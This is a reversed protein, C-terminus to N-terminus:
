VSATLQDELFDLLPEHEDPVILTLGAQPPATATEKLAVISSGDVTKELRMWGSHTPVHGKVRVVEAPLADLWAQWEEVARVHQPSLVRCSFPNADYTALDADPLEHARATLDFPVQCFSTQLIEAGPNLARLKAEVERLHNSSVTDTKNIILTDSTRVQVATVPMHDILKLINKPAVVTVIRHILFATDLDHDSFLTGIAEPDAIGSTEIVVADLPQNRHADLVTGRMTRIFDGAKCECFLSGGVVSRTPTGAAALTDGDVSSEAFENVLFVLRWEPHSEALRKLFTTKGSGLFGTVLITPIRNSENM